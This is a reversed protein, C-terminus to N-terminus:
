FKGDYDSGSEEGMLRVYKEPDKKMKMFTDFAKLIMQCENKTTGETDRDLFAKFHDMQFVLIDVISYGAVKETGIFKQTKLYTIFENLVPEDNIISRFFEDAFEKDLGAAETMEDIVNRIQEEM